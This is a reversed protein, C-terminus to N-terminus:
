PDMIISIPPTAKLFATGCHQLIPANTSLNNFFISIAAFNHAFETGHQSQSGILLPKNAHISNKHKCPVFVGLLVGHCIITGGGLSFDGLFGQGCATLHSPLVVELTEPLTSHLNSSLIAVKAM